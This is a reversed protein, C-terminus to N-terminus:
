PHLICFVQGLISAARLYLQRPTCHPPPYPAPLYAFKTDSAATGLALGALVFSRPLVFPPCVAPCSGFSCRYFPDCEHICLETMPKQNALLRNRMAIAGHM